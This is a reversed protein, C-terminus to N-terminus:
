PVINRTVTYDFSVTWAALRGHSRGTDSHLKLEVNGTPLAYIRSPAEVDALPIYSLEVGSLLVEYFALARAGPTGNILERVFHVTMTGTQAEAKRQLTYLSGSLTTRAVSRSRARLEVTDVIDGYELVALPSSARTFTMDPDYPQSPGRSTSAHPTGDWVWGSTDGDRYGPRLAAEGEALTDTEVMMWQDTWLRANSGLPHVIQVEMWAAVASAPVQAVLSLYRGGYFGAEEHGTVVNPLANNGADRFSLRALAQTGVETAVWASIGVFKGPTVAVLQDDRQIRTYFSSGDSRGEILYRGSRGAMKPYVTEDIRKLPVSGLSSFGDLNTEASPNTILNQVIPM